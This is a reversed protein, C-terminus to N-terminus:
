CDDEALYRQLPVESFNTTLFISKWGPLTTGLGLTNQAIVNCINANELYICM